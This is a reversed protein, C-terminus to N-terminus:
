LEPFIARNSEYLRTYIAYNREYIDTHERRPITPEPKIRVLTGCADEVSSYLRIGVGAMAAAGLCAQEETSNVYVECNLTDAVIQKWLESKAGGGSVIIRQMGCGLSKFIEMGDRLSFCVGELVARVLHADRHELKLGFFLGRSYPDMHPTRDGTLYPLFVLGNSGAPVDDAMRDLAKYDDNRLIQTALWKLSLGASMTAALLYWRDRVAHVYTHTRLQKDYAPTLMPSLLQGGTGITCSVDGAEIVGNGIAQMAQDAGGYVVPTGSRFVTEAETSRSVYGAVDWPNGAAPFMAPDLGATNLLPESWQRAAVDFASTGSADTTETGIEGTLRYRIYDKPLMVHAIRRYIGPEHARIWMLSLLLFGTSMPNQIMDGLQEATFLSAIADRQPISRQDCWIIAPRLVRGERDLAVLGHMQGSLGIGRIAAGPYGSRAIALESTRKVLEWWTDPNQEAHGSSPIDIGYEQQAFGLVHGSANTVMAKVSSTGLDIGMLLSM